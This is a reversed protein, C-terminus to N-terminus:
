DLRDVRTDSRPRDDTWETVKARSRDETAVGLRAGVHLDLVRPDAVARLHRMERVHAVGLDAVVRVDAGAGDGRVERVLGTLRLAPGPDAAVDPGPHVIREDRGDLHPVSSPDGGSRHYRFVDRGVREADGARALLVLFAICGSVAVSSTRGPRSAEAVM